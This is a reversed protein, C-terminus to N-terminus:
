FLYFAKPDITTTKLKSKFEAYDENLRKKQIMWNKEILRLELVFM